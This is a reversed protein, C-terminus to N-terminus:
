ANKVIVSDLVDAVDECKDTISELIEYIEKFKIIEIADTGERFMHRLVTRLVADGAKELQNIKEIHARIDPLKRAKLKSIASVVEDVSELINKAFEGMAPTAATIEYLDFRASCAELGDVVDDLTVALELFDERELPTIYTANLLTIMESTLDDGKREHEKIKAALAEPHSLDSLGQEFLQATDKVNAAIQVLYDFLQDSRKSVLDGEALLIKCVSFDKRVTAFM